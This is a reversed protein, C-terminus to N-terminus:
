KNSITYRILYSSHENKESHKFNTFEGKQPNFLSLGKDTGIWINKNNDIHIARVIDSPLSTPDKADHRFNQVKYDKLSIISLGEGDHGIYLNGQGDEETTRFYDGLTTNKPSIPTFTQKERDYFEIGHRYHTIWIGNDASSTLDTIENSILGDKTTLSHFENTTYDYFYLGDKHTGIWIKSEIPDALLTNLEESHLQSNYKNFVTFSHGDFRDLGSSTAIWIYGKPDQTIDLAYNSSMGHEMNFNEVRYPQAFGNTFIILLSLLAIHRKM